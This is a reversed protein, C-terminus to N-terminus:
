CSFFLCILSYLIIFFCSLFPIITMRMQLKAIVDRVEFGNIVEGCYEIIFAGEEVDELVRLGFGKGHTKVVATKAWQKRAIRANGCGDGHQCVRPDCETMSARLDCSDDYCGTFGKAIAKSRASEEEEEEEEPDDNDGANGTAALRARAAAKAAAAEAAANAAAAEAAEQAALEASRKLAMRLSGGTFAPPSLPRKAAALAAAAAAAALDDDVGDASLPSKCFAADAAAGAGASSSSSAITNNLAASANSVSRVPPPPCSCTMVDCRKLPKPQIMPWVYRSRSVRQYGAPAADAADPRKDNPDAVVPTPAPRSRKRPSAPTVLATTVPAFPTFPTAEGSSQPVFAPVALAPAVPAPAAAAANDDAMPTGSSAPAASPQKAPWRPM